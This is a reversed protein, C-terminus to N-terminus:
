LKPCGKVKSGLEASRVERTANTTRADRQSHQDAIEGPTLRATQSDGHRLIRSVSDGNSYLNLDSM